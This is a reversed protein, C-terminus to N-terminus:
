YGLAHKGLWIVEVMPVGMTSGNASVTVGDHYCTSTRGTTEDRRSDSGRRAGRHRRIRLDGGSGLIRLRIEAIPMEHGYTLVIVRLLIM